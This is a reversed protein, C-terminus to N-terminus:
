ILISKQKIKDNSRSITQKWICNANKNLITENKKDDNNVHKEFKIEFKIQENENTVCWVRFNKCEFNWKITM